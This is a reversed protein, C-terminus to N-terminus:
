TRTAVLNERTRLVWWVLVTAWGAGESEAVVEARISAKEFVQM